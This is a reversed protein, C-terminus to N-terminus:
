VRYALVIERKRVVKNENGIFHEIIQIFSNIVSLKILSIVNFLHPLLWIFALRCIRYYPYWFFIILCIITNPLLFRLIDFRKWFCNLQHPLTIISVPSTLVYLMHIFVLTFLLSFYNRSFFHEESDNNNLM